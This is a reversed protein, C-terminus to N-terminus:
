ESERWPAFLRSLEDCADMAWERVPKMDLIPCDWALFAFLGETEQVTGHPVLRSELRYVTGVPIDLLRFPDDGIRLMANRDNILVLGTTIFNLPHKDIHVGVARTTWWVGDVLKVISPREKSGDGVAAGFVQRRITRALSPPLVFGHEVFPEIM